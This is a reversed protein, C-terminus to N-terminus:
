KSPREFTSIASSNERLRKLTARKSSSARLLPSTYLRTPRLDMRALATAVARHVRRGHDTLLRTRDDPYRRPDAEGADAHRIVLIRM